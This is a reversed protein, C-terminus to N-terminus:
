VDGEFATVASRFDDGLRMPKAKEYDYGVQTTRAFALTRGSKADWLLYDFDYSAGRIEPCRIGLMVADTLTVPSRYEIFVRGLIFKVRSFDVLGTVEKWYAMRGFELYSLFVANNVHGMADTDRFRVQIPSTVKFDRPTLTKLSDIDVM